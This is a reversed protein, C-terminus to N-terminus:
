AVQAGELIGNYYDVIVQKIHGVNEAELKVRMLGKNGETRGSTVALRYADVVEDATLRDLTNAIDERFTARVSPTNKAFYIHDTYYKIVWIMYNMTRVDVCEMYQVESATNRGYFSFIGADTKVLVDLRGNHLAKVTEKRYTNLIGNPSLGQLSMNSVRRACSTGLPATAEQAARAVTGDLRYPSTTDWPNVVIALEYNAYNRGIKIADTPDINPDLGIFGIAPYFNRKMENIKGALIPILDYQGAAVTNDCFVVTTVNTLTDELYQMLVDMADAYDDTSVASGDSGGELQYRGNAPLHTALADPTFGMISNYMLAAQIDVLDVLNDIAPETTDGDHITLKKSKYVLAVGIADTEAPEQGEFFILSGAAKNVYVKGSALDGVLYVITKETDGVTIRNDDDEIIDAFPLYYPGVSGDGAFTGVYHGPFTGDAIDAFGSNGSIGDNPSTLVGLNGYHELSCTVLEDAEPGEGTFFTLEGNEQDLYVKETALSSLAYVITLPSGTGIRISNAVNQTYCKYGLPYPGEGGDGYFTETETAVQGDHVYKKAARHGAGMVRVFYGAPLGQAFGVQGARALPGSKYYMSTESESTLPLVTMGPGHTSEGIAAMVNTGLKVSTAGMIGMRVILGVPYSPDGIQEIIESL